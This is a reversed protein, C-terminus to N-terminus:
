SQQGKREVYTASHLVWKDGLTRLSRVWALRNHRDIKRIGCSFNRRARTLLTIDM